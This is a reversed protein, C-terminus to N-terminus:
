RRQRGRSPAIVALFNMVSRVRPLRSLDRHVVLWLRTSIVREPPLLRILDADDDALVCPLIAVGMGAKCAALHM